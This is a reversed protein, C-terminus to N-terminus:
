MCSINNGKADEVIGDGNTDRSWILRGGFNIRVHNARKAERSPPCWTLHGISGKSAGDSNFQFYRRPGAGSNSPILEGTRIANVQRIILGESVIEKLNKPDAFIAVPNNWASTCKGETSVPCLTVVTNEHVATSRALTFMRQLNNQVASAHFAEAVPTWSVSVVTLLIASIAVTVLLELLTMGHQNSGYM